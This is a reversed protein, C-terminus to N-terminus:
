DRKNKIDDRARQLTCPTEENREGGREVGITDRLQQNKNNGRVSTKVFKAQMEGSKFVSDFDLKVIRSDLDM